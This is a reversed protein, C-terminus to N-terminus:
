NRHFDSFSPVPVINVPCRVRDLSNKSHDWLRAQTYLLLLQPLPQLLLLTAYDLSYTRSETQCSYPLPWRRRSAAAITCHAAAYRGARINQCALVDIQQIAKILEGLILAFLSSIGRKVTMVLGHNLESSASINRQQGKWPPTPSSSSSITQSYNSELTVHGSANKDLRCIWPWGSYSMMLRRLLATWGNEKTVLFNLCQLYIRIRQIDLKWAAVPGCSDVM